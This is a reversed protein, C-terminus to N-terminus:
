FVFSKTTNKTEQNSSKLEKLKSLYNLFFHSVDHSFRDIEKLLQNLSKRM